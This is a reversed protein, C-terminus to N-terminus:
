RALTDTKIKSTNSNKKIFVNKDHLALTKIM